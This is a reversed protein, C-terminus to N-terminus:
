FYYRMLLQWSQVQPAAGFESLSTGSYRQWQVAYETHDVHYRAELWTLRSFDAADYYEMVSLDLHNIMADQWNAYLFVRRKAPPEQIFQLWGRYIGYVQVPGRWLNDWNSQDLGSGNYELEATLSLKDSTTYTLGTSLRNRFATDDAHPIGENTLATTLSSPARGGSWEAYIVTSDSVLSSLNLGYQVPLEQEKYALFQPTVTESIKQSLTFLWRDRNNTGGLDPNFDDNNPHLSLKPSYLGTSSGNDWISQGRLMVSGERNVKLSMPDVSVVSRVAGTNFYDTPNYGMAAGNRVNIRGFDVIGDPKAQWSFYAEKITNVSNQRNVQTPNFLNAQPPWDIDLRDSFFARWGPAFTNDYQLDFSLRHNSQVPGGNRQTDGGYGGEIFTRWNSAKEVADPTKDALMLAADDQDEANANGSALLGIVTCFFALRATNRYINSNV